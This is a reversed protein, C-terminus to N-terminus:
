AVGAAQAKIQALKDYAAKTATAHSGTATAVKFITVKYTHWDHVYVSDSCTPFIDVDKTVTVHEGDADVRVIVDWVTQQAALAPSTGAADVEWEEVTADAGFRDPHNNYYEAAAEAAERTSYVAITGGASYERNDLIYIKMAAKMPQNGDYKNM